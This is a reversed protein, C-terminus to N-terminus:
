TPKWPIQERSLNSGKGGLFPFISLISTIVIGGTTVGSWRWPRSNALRSITRYMSVM